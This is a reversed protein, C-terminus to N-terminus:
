RVAAVVRDIIDGSVTDGASIRRVRRGFIRVLGDTWGSGHEAGGIICLGGRSMAWYGRFLAQFFLTPTAPAALAISNRNKYLHYKKVEVLYPWADGPVLLMMGRPRVFEALKAGLARVLGAVAERPSSGLHRGVAWLRARTTLSTPASFIREPTNPRSEWGVDNSTYRTLWPEMQAALWPGLVAGQLTEHGPRQRLRRAEAQYKEPLFGAWFLYHAFSLIMGVDREVVNLGREIRRMNWIAEFSTYPFSLWSFRNFLEVVFVSRDGGETNRVFQLVAVWPRDVTRLLTWETGACAVSLRSLQPRIKDLEVYIDVDGTFRDPYGEHNRILLYRANCGDLERILALFLSRAPSETM